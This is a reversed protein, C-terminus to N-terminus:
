SWEDYEPEKEKVEVSYGNKKAWAEIVKMLDVNYYESFVDSDWSELEQGMDQEKSLIAQKSEPAIVEPNDLLERIMSGTSIYDEEGKSDVITASPTGGYGKTVIVKKEEQNPVQTQPLDGMVNEVVQKYAEFILDTDRNM